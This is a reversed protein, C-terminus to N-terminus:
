IRRIVQALLASIRPGAANGAALVETHSLPEGTVGAAHNTV